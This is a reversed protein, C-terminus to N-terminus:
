FTYRPVSVADAALRRAENPELYPVLLYHVLDPTVEPLQKARGADVYHAVMLGAGGLLMEELEAPMAIEPRGNRMLEALQALCVQHRQRARAGAQLVEIAFLRALSPNAALLHLTRAAGVGVKEPWGDVAMVAQQVREYLWGAALDYTALFCEEKDDFQAYFATRSVGAEDVLRGITVESYGHRPLLAVMAGLIRLRQNRAVVSRPLGHRGAPLRAASVEPPLEALAEPEFREPEGGAGAEGDGGGM